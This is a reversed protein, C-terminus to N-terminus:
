VSPAISCMDVMCGSSFEIGTMRRKERLVRDDIFNALRSTHFDHRLADRDYEDRVWDLFPKRGEGNRRGSHAPARRVTQYLEMALTM